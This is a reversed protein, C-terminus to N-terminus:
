VFLNVGRLFPAALAHGCLRAHYVLRHSQTVDGEGHKVCSAHYQWMPRWTMHCVPTHAIHACSQKSSMFTQQFPAATMAINFLKPQWRHFCTTNHASHPQEPLDFCAHFGLGQWISCVIMYVSGDTNCCMHICNAMCLQNSAEGGVQIRLMVNQRLMWDTCARKCPRMIDHICTTSAICATPLGHTSHMSLMLLGAGTLCVATPYRASTLSMPLVFFSLSSPTM